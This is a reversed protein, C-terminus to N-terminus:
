SETFLQRSETFIQGSETFLQSSETFLQRSETFSQREETDNIGRVQRLDNNEVILAQQKAESSNLIMKYFDEESTKSREADREKTCQAADIAEKKLQKDVNSRKELLLANLHEQLKTFAREKKRLEHLYQTQRQAMTAVSSKSTDREERLKTAQVTTLDILSVASHSLISQTQRQAM